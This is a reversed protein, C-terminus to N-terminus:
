SKNPLTMQIVINEPYPEFDLRCGPALVYILPIECREPKFCQGDTLLILCDYSKNGSHKNVYGVPANFDTGGCETRIFKAPKSRTVTQIGEENVCTSFPLIDFETLNGLNSLEAFLLEIWDNHMSGSEDM